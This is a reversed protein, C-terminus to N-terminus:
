ELDVLVFRTFITPRNAIWSPCWSFFFSLRNNMSSKCLHYNVCLSFFFFFLPLNQFVRQSEVSLMLGVRIEHLLRWYKTLLLSSNGTQRWLKRLTAGKHCKAPVTENNSTMHCHVLWHIPVSYRTFRWSHSYLLLTLKLVNNRTWRKDRIYM